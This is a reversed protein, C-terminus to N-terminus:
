SSWMLRTCNNIIVIQYMQILSLESFVGHSVPKRFGKRRGVLSSKRVFSHMKNRASTLFILFYPTTLRLPKMFGAEVYLLILEYKHPGPTATLGTSCYTYATGLKVLMINILQKNITSFPLQRHVKYADPRELYAHM